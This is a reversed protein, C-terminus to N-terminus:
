QIKEEIVQNIVPQPVGPGSVMTWELPIIRSSQLTVTGGTVLFKLMEHATSPVAQIKRVGPRGIIGNYPSPSRVIMFNMWASTSHEKDGIKPRFKNFCHEYLIKLSSGGDVYMRYVFHGGMEAEVIMPDKTRDEGRLAFFLNSVGSLFNSYDKTQSGEALTTGDTNSATKGKRLNVGKQRRQRTKEM